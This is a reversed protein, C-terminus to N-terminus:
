PFSLDHLMSKGGDDLYRSYAGTGSSRPSVRIESGGRGTVLSRELGAVSILQPM